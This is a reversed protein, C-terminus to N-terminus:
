QALRRYRRVYSCSLPMRRGFLAYLLNVKSCYAAVAFRRRYVTCSKTQTDLYPCPKRLDILVGAAVREREYCCLGCRACIAEWRRSSKGRLGIGLM